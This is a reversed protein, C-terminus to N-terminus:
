EDEIRRRHREEGFARRLAENLDTGDELALRGMYRRIGEPTSEVSEFDYTLPPGIRTKVAVLGEMTDLGQVRAEEALPLPLRDALYFSIGVVKGKSSNMNTMERARTSRGTSDSRKCRPNCSM